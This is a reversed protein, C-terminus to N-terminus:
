VRAFHACVTRSRTLSQGHLFGIVPMAPQQARAALPWAGRRRAAHHVHATEMSPFADSGWPALFPCRMMDSQPPDTLPINCVNAAHLGDCPVREFDQRWGQPKRMTEQDALRRGVNVAAGRERWVNRDAALIVFPGGTQRRLWDLARGRRPVLRADRVAALRDVESPDTPEASLDAEDLRRRLPGAGTMPRGGAAADRAVPM